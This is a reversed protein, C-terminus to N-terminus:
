NNLSEVKVSKGMTSVIFVDKFYVGKISAPKSQKVADIVANFNQLLDEISFKVNGIKVHVIGAKDSKFRIQGSKIIKIAKVLDFTVTNFKPNPMLGRPGLIKAISSVSPMFDPTTLCWDVDLKCKKRKIEEILDEDGVIDAMAEKAADLHGGKAFVAVRVERGLGKPLVVSGRVQEDSKSSNINLNIALDVSECFNAKASEIVKRFGSAADYIGDNNALLSM